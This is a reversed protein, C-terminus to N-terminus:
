AVVEALAYEVLQDVFALTDALVRQGDQRTAAALEGALEGLTRSDDLQLWLHTATANLDYKECYGELEALDANLYTVVFYQRRVRTTANIM